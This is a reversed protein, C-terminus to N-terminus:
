DEFLLKRKTKGVTNSPSTPSAPPYKTETLTITATNTPRYCWRMKKYTKRQFFKGDRCARELRHLIAVVHSGVALELRDTANLHDIVDRVSLGEEFDDLTAQDAELYAKRLMHDVSKIDIPFQRARWLLLVQHNVPFGNDDSKATFPQCRERQHRMRRRRPTRWPLKKPSTEEHVALM